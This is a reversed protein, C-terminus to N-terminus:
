RDRQREGQVLVNRTKRIPGWVINLTAWKLSTVNFRPPFGDCAVIEPYGDRTLNGVHPDPGAFATAAQFDDRRELLHAIEEAV